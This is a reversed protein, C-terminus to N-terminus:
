QSSCRGTRCRQQVALRHRHVRKARCPGAHVAPRTVRSPCGAGSQMSHTVTAQERGPKWSGPEWSSNQRQEAATGRSERGNITSSRRLASWGPWTRSCRRASTSPLLAPKETTARPRQGSDQRLRREPAITEEALAPTQRTQVSRLGPHGALFRPPTRGPHLQASTPSRPPARQRPPTRLLRPFQCHTSRPPRRAAQRSIGCSHWSSAPAAPTQAAPRRTIPAPRHRGADCTSPKNLALSRFSFACLVASSTNTRNSQPDTGMM